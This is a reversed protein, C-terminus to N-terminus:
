GRAQFGPTKQGSFLIVVIFDINSTIAETATIAMITDTLPTLKMM